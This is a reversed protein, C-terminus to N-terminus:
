RRYAFFSSAGLVLILLLVLFVVVGIAIKQIRLATRQMSIASDVKSGSAEGQGFIREAFRSNKDKIEANLKRIERYEALLAAQGDRIEELLAVVRDERELSM